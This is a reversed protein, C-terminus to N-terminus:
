ATAQRAQVPMMRENLNGTVGNVASAGHRASVSLSRGPCRNGRVSARLSCFPPRPLIGIGRQVTDRSAGPRQVSSCPIRGSSAIFAGIVHDSMFEGRLTTRNSRCMGTFLSADDGESEHFIFLADKVEVGCLDSVTAYVFEGEILRPQMSAILLTLESAPHM